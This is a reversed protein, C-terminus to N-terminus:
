TSEGFLSFSYLVGIHVTITNNYQPVQEKMYKKQLDTLGYHYRASIFPTFFSFAYRVGIGAFLAADFRNDRTSDFPVRENFREMQVYGPAYPYTSSGRLVGQRNSHLWFGLTVGLDFFVQFVAIETSFDAFVPLQLFGNTYDSYAPHGDSFDRAYQYNKQIYRLGSGVALYENLPVLVPVGILFGGRDNYSTFARYGTSTNLFNHTYGGEIGVSVDMAHAYWAFGSVLVFMWALKKAM